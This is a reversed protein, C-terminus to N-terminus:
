PKSLFPITNDAKEAESLDFVENDSDCTQLYQLGGNANKCISARGCTTTCPIRMVNMGFQSQGVIPMIKHCNVDRGDKVLVTEKTKEDIRTTYKHTTEM